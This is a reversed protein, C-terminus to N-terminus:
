PPPIGQYGGGVGGQYYAKVTRDGAPPGEKPSLM